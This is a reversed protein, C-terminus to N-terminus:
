FEGIMQPIDFDQIEVEDAEDKSYVFIANGVQNDNTDKLQCVWTKQLRDYWRDVTFINM